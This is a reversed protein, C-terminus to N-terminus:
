VAGGIGWGAAAPGIAGWGVTDTACGGVVWGGTEMDACGAVAGITIDLGGGAVSPAGCCGNGWAGRCTSLTCSPIFLLTGKWWVSSGRARPTFLSTSKDNVRGTKDEREKDSKAKKPKQLFASQRCVRVASVCRTHKL